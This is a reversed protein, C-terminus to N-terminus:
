RKKIIAHTAFFKRILYVAVLISALVVGILFYQTNFQVGKEPDCQVVLELPAAASISTTSGTGAVGAPYYETAIIKGKFTKPEAPCTMSYVRPVDFCIQLQKAIDHTTGGPVDINESYPNLEAIEGSTTLQLKVDEDWPNYVGYDFCKTQGEEVESIVTGYVIGVGKMASAQPALLVVLLGLLLIKNM